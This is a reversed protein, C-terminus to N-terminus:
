VGIPHWVTKSELFARLRALDPERGFDEAPRARLVRKVTGAASRELDTRLEAPAGTLDLANVDAHSALWPAIEATRGTLVNVVGGPVDSTALVEALTIAPLPRDQSAVVVATNGTAIVPALVSVLGLLSSQQPALVAVVGTPEPVSFSFYPGAVPNSAGLVSAVKDTWGAYWVWRDVAADVLAQAKKAAVGEAAGVEATFQERRGELVEAVRYLVQGRNYATAGSWGAFAKRAAAVADRADKRSGQAANALFGGKADAVPYSRGSESRPFAGGVYLKYTKAVAVRSEARGLSVRDSM